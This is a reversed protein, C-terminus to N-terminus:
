SQGLKQKANWMRMAFATSRPWLREDLDDSQVLETWLVVEAGLIREKAVIGKAFPDFDYFTKWTKYPHCWSVAGLQNGFGCDLYLENFPSLIVQNSNLNMSEYDDSHGWYQLIQTPLLYLDAM